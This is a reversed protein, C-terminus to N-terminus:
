ARVHSIERGAVQEKPLLWEGLGFLLLGLGVINLTVLWETLSPVYYTSM